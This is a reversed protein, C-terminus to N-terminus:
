RNLKQRPKTPTLHRRGTHTLQLAARVLLSSWKPIPIIRLAIGLPNGTKQTTTGPHEPATRSCTRVQPNLLYEDLKSLAGLNLSVTRSFEQSVKKTVRGEIEESVRTIYKETMGPVFTNQSQGKMVSKQTVRSVAALKRKNRLTAM